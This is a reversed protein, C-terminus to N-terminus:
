GFWSSHTVSDAAAASVSRGRMMAVTTTSGICEATSTALFAAM